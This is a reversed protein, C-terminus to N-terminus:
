AGEGAQSVTAAAKSLGLGWGAQNQQRDLELSSAEEGDCGDGRRGAGAGPRGSERSEQPLSACVLYLLHARFFSSRTTPVTIM